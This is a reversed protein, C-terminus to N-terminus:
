SSEGCMPVPADVVIKSLSLNRGYTIKLFAIHAQVEKRGTNKQAEAPVNRKYHQTEIAVCFRSFATTSLVHAFLEDSIM